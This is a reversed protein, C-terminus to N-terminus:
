QEGASASEFYAVLRGVFKKDKKIEESLASIKEKPKLNLKLIEQIKSM